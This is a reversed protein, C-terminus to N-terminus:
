GPATGVAILAAAVRRGEARLVNYTRCAAGTDMSDVAIGQAQLAGRLAPTALAFREGSGILLIEVERAAAVVPQLSDLTVAAIESADWAVVGDPLVIVSGRFSEGDVRFGGAGYAEIVRSTGRTAADAM